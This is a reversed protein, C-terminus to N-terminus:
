TERSLYLRRNFVILVLTKSRSYPSLCHVSSACLYASLLCSRMCVIVSFSSSSSSQVSMAAAAAKTEEVFEERDQRLSPQTRGRDACLSTVVIGKIWPFDTWTNKEGYLFVRLNARDTRPSPFVGGGGGGEPPAATLGTSSTGGTVSWGERLKLNRYSSRHLGWVLLSSM